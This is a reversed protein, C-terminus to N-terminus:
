MALGLVLWLVRLPPRELHVTRIGPGQGGCAALLDWEAWLAVTAAAAAAREQGRRRGRGGSACCCRRADCSSRTQPALRGTPSTWNCCGSTVAASAQRCVRWLRWASRMANVLALPEAPTRRTEWPRGPQVELAATPATPASAVLVLPRPVPAAAPPSFLHLLQLYAVPLPTVSHQSPAQGHWWWQGPWPRRTWGSVVAQQLLNALGLGTRFGRVQALSTGPGPHVWGMSAGQATGYRAALPGLVSGGVVVVVMLLSRRCRGLWRRSKHLWPSTGKTARCHRAVTPLTTRGNAWRGSRSSPLREPRPQPRRQPSHVM